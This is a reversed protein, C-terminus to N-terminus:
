ATTLMSRWCNGHPCFGYLGKAVNCNHCLIQIYNPYGELKLKRHFTYGSKKGAARHVHGDDDVHDLALFRWGREGCCRCQGGYAALAELRSAQDRERFRELQEARNEKHYERNNERVRDPHLERWRRGAGRAKARNEPKERNKRNLDNQKARYEPDMRRLRAAAAWRDLTARYRAPDAERMRHRYDTSNM